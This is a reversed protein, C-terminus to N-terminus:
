YLLVLVSDGDNGSKKVLVKRARGVVSFLISNLNGYDDDDLLYCCKMANCYYPDRDNLVYIYIYINFRDNIKRYIYHM